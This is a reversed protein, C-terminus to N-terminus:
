AVNQCRWRYWVVYLLCICSFYKWMLFEINFFSNVFKQHPTVIAKYAGSTTNSTFFHYIVWVKLALNSSTADFLFCNGFTDADTVLREAVLHGSSGRESPRFNGCDLVPKERVHCVFDKKGWCLFDLVARLSSGYESGKTIDSREYARRLLPYRARYLKEYDVAGATQSFDAADCEERTLVGEDILAELSIFYPNGSFTSFSQYPSDGFSTPYLPLIQWYTQGADRLWDVFDYTAQSFCGIGYPSPLSSISM